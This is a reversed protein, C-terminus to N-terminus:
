FVSFDNEMLIQATSMLPLGIIATYDLCDIEDFLAIGQNELMYSGCCKLPMEREVYNSIQKLSLKRMKMKAIITKEIRKEKSLYTTATILEHTKGSLLSLQEIAKEKTLPKGLIKGKINLVQDGGIIFENPFKELINRAKLTALTKALLEPDAIKGKFQEEDVNPSHCTFPVSLRELQEKRYPSTSALILNM